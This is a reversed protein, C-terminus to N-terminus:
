LRTLLCGDVDEIELQLKGAKRLPYLDQVFVPFSFRQATLSLSVSALRSYASNNHQNREAIMMALNSHSFGDGRLALDLKALSPVLLPFASSSSSPTMRALLRDTVAVANMLLIRSDQFCEVDHYTLSSLAALNELIQLLGEEDVLVERLTLSTLRCPALFRQLAEAPFPLCFRYSEHPTRIDLSTLSPILCSQLLRHFAVTELSLAGSFVISLEELIPSISVPAGTLPRKAARARLHPAENTRGGKWCRDFHLKRLNTFKAIFQLAEENLDFERINLCEIQDWPLETMELAGEDQPCSVVLKRLKPAAKFLDGATKSHDWTLEELDDWAMQVFLPSGHEDEFVRGNKLDVLSVNPHSYLFGFMVSFSRWTRSHQFISQLSYLDHDELALRKIVVDMKGRSLTSLYDLVEVGINEVDLWWCPGLQVSSWLSPISKAVRLWHICVGALTLGPIRTESIRNGRANAGSAHRYLRKRSTVEGILNDAFIQTTVDVLWNPQHMMCFYKFIEALIEEPLLRIPSFLARMNALRTRSQLASIHNQTILNSLRRGEAELEIVRLSEQEMRRLLINSDAPSIRANTHVYPYALLPGLSSTSPLEDSESNM